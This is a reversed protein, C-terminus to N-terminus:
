PRHTNLRFTNNTVKTYDTHETQEVTYLASPRRVGPYYLYLVSYSCFCGAVCLAILGLPVFVCDVRLYQPLHVEFLCQWLVCLVCLSM